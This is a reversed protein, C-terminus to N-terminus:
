TASLSRPMYPDWVGFRAYSGWIDPTVPTAVSYEHRAVAPAAYWEPNPKRTSMVDVDRFHEIVNADSHPIPVSGSPCSRM